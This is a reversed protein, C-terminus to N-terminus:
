VGFKPSPELLAHSLHPCFGLGQLRTYRYLLAEWRTVTSSMLGSFNAFPVGLLTTVFTEPRVGAVWCDSFAECQFGRSMGSILSTIGFFEGPCILSVLVEEGEVNPLSLKAVGSILLYLMDSPGGESFLRVHRDVHRLTMQAILKELQEDSAWSLTKLRRLTTVNLLPQRAM